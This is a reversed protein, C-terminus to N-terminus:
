RATEVVRADALFAGVDDLENRDIGHGLGPYTRATLTSHGPLWSATRAVAVPAIVRDEEGRGWFLPPRERALRDDAPQGPAQVFGGLIVTAAVCDPRTRLLQSAMLGGQSFGVPVVSAASSLVEDIWTWLAQTAQHVAAPDPSGPTTIPFWAAGGRALELPGRPSVWPMGRLAPGLAALDREDSGFGHLLVATVPADARLDDSGVAQTIRM